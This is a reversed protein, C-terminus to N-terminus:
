QRCVTLTKAARTIATYLLKHAHGKSRNIMGYLGRDAVIIVHDYQSGQAKHITSAYGLTLPMYRHPPVVDVEAYFHRLLEEVDGRDWAERAPHHPTDAVSEEWRKLMTQEHRKMLRIRDSFIGVMRQLAKSSGDKPERLDPWVRFVKDDVERFTIEAEPAGIENSFTTSGAEQYSAVTYIEGNMMNDQHRNALVMVREGPLFGPFDPDVGACVRVKRNVAVRGAHTACLCIADPEPGWLKNYYWRATAHYQLEPSKGARLIHTQQKDSQRKQWAPQGGPERHMAAWDLIGGKKQRHVETLRVLSSELRIGPKGRVPPLQGEDGTYYLRAEIEDAAEKLHGVFVEDLMSAEDNIILCRRNAEEEGSISPQGFMLKSPLDATPTDVGKKCAPCVRVPEEPNRVDESYHGCHPCQGALLARGYLLSHGTTPPMINQPYTDLLDQIADRLVSAAKGTPATLYVRCPKLLMLSKLLIKLLTTKGTGAYGSMSSSWYYPDTPDTWAKLVRTGGQRQSVSPTIGYEACVRDFTQAILDPSVTNM